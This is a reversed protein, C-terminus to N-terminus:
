FHCRMKHSFPHFSFNGRLLAIQWRGLNSFSSIETPISGTIGTVLDLNLSEPLLNCVFQLVVDGFNTCIIQLWFKGLNTMGEILEIFNAEVYTLSLDLSKLDKLPRLESSLRGELGTQYM